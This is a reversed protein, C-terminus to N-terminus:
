RVIVNLILSWRETWMGIIFIELLLAVVIIAPNSKSLVNLIDQIGVAFSIIFIIFGGIILTLIIKWKNERIFESTTQMKFFINSHYILKDISELSNDLILIM